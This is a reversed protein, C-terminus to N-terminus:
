PATKELLDVDAANFGPLIFHDIKKWNGSQVLNVTTPKNQFGPHTQKYFRTLERTECHQDRIVLLYKFTDISEVPRDNPHKIAFQTGQPDADLQLIQDNYRWRVPFSLHFAVKAPSEYILATKGPGLRDIVRFVRKQPGHSFLEGHLMLNKAGFANPILLLLLGVGALKRGLPQSSTIAMGLVIAIVPALYINYHAAAVNFKSVVFSAILLFVIALGGIGMLTYVIPRNESRRLSVILLVLAGLMAIAVLVPVVGVSPHTILRIFLSLFPKLGAPEGDAPGSVKIASFIFPILGAMSLAGAITMLILIGPSRKHIKNEVFLAGLAALTFIVGFFHTYCTLALFLASLIIWRKYQAPTKSSLAGIICFIAISSLLLFLPYARIEVTFTIINPSVALILSAALAAAAGGIRKAAMFTFFVAGVGCCLGFARMTNESLGFVRSWTWGVLYSLPPMRDDPVLLHMPKGSLWKICEVPNMTLGTLQTTEDVWVSQQRLFATGSILLLVIPIALLSVTKLRESIMKQEHLFAALLGVLILLSCLGITPYLPIQLHLIGAIKQIIAPRWLILSIPLLGLAAKPYRCVLIVFIPMYIVTDYEHLPMILAAAALSIAYISGLQDAVDTNKRLKIFLLILSFAALVFAINRCAPIVADPVGLHHLIASLGILHNPFNEPLNGWLGLTQRLHPIIQSPTDLFLLALSLLSAACSIVIAKRHKSDFLILSLIPLLSLQPKISAAIVGLLILINHNLTVGALLLVLGLAALLSTQGTFIVAPAGSISISFGVGLLIPWFAGNKWRSSVSAIKWLGLAIAALAAINMAMYAKAAAPWAFFGLPAFFIASTPPYFYAAHPPAELNQSWVRNFEDLNYPSVGQVWCKGAVFLWKADIHKAGGSKIVGSYFVAAFILSLIIRLINGRAAGLHQHVDPNPM